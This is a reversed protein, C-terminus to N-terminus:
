EVEDVFALAGELQPASLSLARIKPALTAALENQGSQQADRVWALLAAARDIDTWQPLSLGNYLEQARAPQNANWAAKAFAFALRQWANAGVDPARAAIALAEGAVGLALAADGDRRAASALQRRTELEFPLVQAAVARAAKAEAGTLTNALDFRLAPSRPEIAVAQRLLEVRKEDTLAPNQAGLAAARAAILRDPADAYRPLLALAAGLDRQARALNADAIPPADPAQLARQALAFRLQGLTAAAIVPAGAPLADGQARTPPLLAASIAPALPSAAMRAALTELAERAASYDWAEGAVQALLRAAGGADNQAELLAFYSSALASQEDADRASAILAQWQAGALAPQDLRRLATAMAQRAASVMAHRDGDNPATDLAASALRLAERAPTPGEFALNQLAASVLVDPDGPFDALLGEIERRARALNRTDVASDLVGSLKAARQSAVIARQFRYFPENPAAAIADDLRALAQDYLQERRARGADTPPTQGTQAILEEATRGLWFASKGWRAAGRELAGRADDDSGFEEQYALLLRADDETAGSAAARNALASRLEDQRLAKQWAGFLADRARSRETELSLSANWERWKGLSASADGRRAALTMLHARATNQLDGDARAELIQWAKQAEADRAAAELGLAYSRELADSDFETADPTQGARLQLLSRTLKQAPTDSPLAALLGAWEDSTANFAYNQAATVESASDPLRSRLVSGWLDRAQALDGQAQAIQARLLVLVLDHYDVSSTREAETSANAAAQAAAKWDRRAIALRARRTEIEINFVGGFGTPSALKSLKDLASAALNLNRISLATEFTAVLPASSDPALKAAADWAAFADPFDENAALSAGRNFLSSADTGTYASPAKLEDDEVIAPLTVAALNPPSAPKLDYAFTTKQGDVTLQASRPLGDPGVVIQYLATIKGKEDKEIRSTPSILIQAPFRRALTKTAAYYATRGGGGFLVDDRRWFSDAASAAPFPTGAFLFNAPGGAALGSGRWWSKAINFDSRRMLGDSQVLTEDGRATIFSGAEPQIQLIDPPQWAIHARTTVGNQTRSIGGEFAPLPAALGVKALLLLAPFPLFRM